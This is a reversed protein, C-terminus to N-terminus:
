WNLWFLLRETDGGDIRHLSIKDSIPSQLAMLWKSKSLELAVFLAESQDVGTALSFGRDGTM